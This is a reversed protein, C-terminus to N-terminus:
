IFKTVYYHYSFFNLVDYLVNYIDRLNKMINDSKYQVVFRVIKERIKFREEKFLKSHNKYVISNIDLYVQQLCHNLYHYVHNNFQLVDHDHYTNNMYETAKIMYGRLEGLIHINLSTETVNNQTNLNIDFIKQTLDDM